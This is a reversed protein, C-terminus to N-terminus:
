EARRRALPHAKAVLAKLRDDLVHTYIQTTAIDAHGLMEQLSRLDAGHALLHSAFSHRLVHPSVRAPDIGAAIATEKLLQAFRARTLHGCRSRSPFLWPSQAPQATGSRRPVKIAQLYTMLAAIAPETLPVIRERGGKGCVILMRQAAALATRPLAVLESVRLGTAYLVELLATLRLGDGGERARGAILLREVEAESLYKPLSRGQRPRDISSSPDDRRLGEAFLFRFFQRLASLRRATTRPSFGLQAQAHIYARVTDTDASAAGQGRKGAFVAFQALDRRYAELTNAAAGREAALMELFMEVFRVTETVPASSAGLHEAAAAESGADTASVDPM